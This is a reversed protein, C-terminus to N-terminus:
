MLNLRQMEDKDLLGLGMKMRLDLLDEDIFGVVKEPFMAVQTISIVKAGLQDDARVRAMDRVFRIERVQSIKSAPGCSALSFSRRCRDGVKGMNEPVAIVCLAKHLPVELSRVAIEEKGIPDNEDFALGLADEHRVKDAM